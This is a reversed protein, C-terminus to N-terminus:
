GSVNLETTYFAELRDIAELPQREADWRFQRLVIRDPLFDALTFGHDEIPAMSEELDIHNPPTAGVGRVGSPFGTPSTGIPGSLVTTIPRGALNVRGTRHMRGVGIAHLDGSVVIGAREANEGFAQALRDHQKLWGEQWYPKIVATTLKGADRDLIDPYWEGWKGASWGWPNSPAHVLHRTDTSHTRDVLWQEVQADVFLAHPGALTMTRRVDYLLVEALNGYRITGFSESLDGRDSMSSWPLGAPRPGDPLFEPYYLQQTARALQIQFWPIPFSSVGDTLSDNDFHDHDDQLFFVPTSRFDSGYVPIIQPGAAAKMATENSHGFVTASFDFNSTRAAASLEGPNDGLWTHLDWYIHDGNAVAADPEFSLARRLLRNRIETPLFGSRRGIGEYTGSTGGACTFFLVRFREPRANPSPFTSLDWPECLSRGNGGVLSLSYRRDPELDAAYFQWYEGLTDNMRGTVETSDVRLTPAASLPRDFSVKLLIRSESVTPLLHRILGADWGQVPPPAGQEVMAELPLRSFFSGAMAGATGALFMRRDVSRRVNM